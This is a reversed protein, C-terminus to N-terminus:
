AAASSFRERVRATVPEMAQAVREPLDAVRAQVQEVLPEVRSTLETGLEHVRTVTAKLQQEAREAAERTRTEFTRSQSEVRDSLSASLSRVRTVTCEAVDGVRAHLQKQRAQAQQVGMVGLGIAIYGADTLTKSLDM